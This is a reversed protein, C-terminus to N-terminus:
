KIGDLSKIMPGKGLIDLSFHMETYNPIYSIYIYYINFPGTSHHCLIYAQCGLDRYYKFNPNRDM